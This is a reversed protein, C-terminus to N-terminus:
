EKEDKGEEIESLHATGLSWRRIFCPQCKEEHQLSYFETLPLFM